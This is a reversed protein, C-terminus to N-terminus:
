RGGLINQEWSNKLYDYYTENTGTWKLLADQFQRTDFLNNITPQVLSYQGKRIMVDGWSELYHPTAAVYQSVIATENPTMSFAVSLKVKKLAEAFENANALTYVPNTENMIVAAVRGAKMDSILEAVEADNGQRTNRTNVVDVVESQIAKNIALAM